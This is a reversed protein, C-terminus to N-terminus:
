EGQSPIQKEWKIGYKEMLALVSEKKIRRLNPIPHKEGTLIGKALYRCVTLRNIGLMEAAEGTSIFGDKMKLPGRIRM